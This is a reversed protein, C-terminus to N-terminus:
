LYPWANPGIWIPITCTSCFTKFVAVQTHWTGNHYFTATMKYFYHVGARRKVVTLLVRLPHPRYRCLYLPACGQNIAWLTGTAHASATRWYQWRLGKFYPGGTMKFQFVSPKISPHTWGQNSAYVKTPPPTNAMAAAPIAATVLALARASLLSQLNM